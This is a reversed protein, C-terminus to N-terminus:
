RDHIAQLVQQVWSADAAQGAAQGVVPDEQQQQQLLHQWLQLGLSTLGTVAKARVTADKDSCGAIPAM